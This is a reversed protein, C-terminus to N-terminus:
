LGVPLLLSISLAALRPAVRSLSGARHASALRRLVLLLAIALIAVNTMKVLFALGVAAGAAVEEGLSREAVAGRLMLHLALLFALPSLVDNSITFFADQPFASLLIAVATRLAVDDPYHERCFRHTLYFLAAFIAGNLFRLWYLLSLGSLGVAEGARYWSGALGYYVPPQFAEHNRAQTWVAMNKQVVWRQYELPAHWSPPPSEGPRLFEPSNYLALAEASEPEYSANDIRPLYGRSYKLTTDFHAIEDTNAFFPFASAFLLIRLVAVACLAIMWTREHSRLFSDFGGSASAESAM